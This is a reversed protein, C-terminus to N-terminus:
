SWWDEGRLPEPQYAMRVAISTLISVRGRGQETIRSAGGAEDSSFIDLKLRVGLIASPAINAAKKQVQRFDFFIL